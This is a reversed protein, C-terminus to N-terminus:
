EEMTYGFLLVAATVYLVDCAVLVGLTDAISGGDVAVRTAGTAILIVPISLPLFLAPLLVDRARGHLALAAFLTGASAFGLLGLLAPPALAASLLPVGLLVSFAPLAIALTVAMFLLNGLMKGLYIASADVPALLLGDLAGRDREAAFGRGLALIGAFALTAWLLGPAVARATAPALQLAFAFVVVVLLTFVACAVLTDRTRLEVRLDKGTIAAVAHLYSNM